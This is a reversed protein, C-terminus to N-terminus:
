QLRSLTNYRGNNYSRTTGVSRCETTAKNDIFGGGRNM